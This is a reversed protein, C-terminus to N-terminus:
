LLKWQIKGPGWYKIELVSGYPFDFQFIKEVEVDWAWALLCRIVGAHTVIAINEASQFASAGTLEKVRHYFGKLCEGQEFQFNLLDADWADFLEQPLDTWRKGEFIGFDFEKLSDSFVIESPSFLAEALLKTRLLPSSYLLDFDAKGLKERVSASEQPFSSAVPLDLQGYCIGKEVKPTTHRILTIKKM